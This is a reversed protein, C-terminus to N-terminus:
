GAVTQARPTDKWFAPPCYIIYKLTVIGANCSPFLSSATEYTLSFTIGSNVPVGPSKVIIAAIVPTTLNEVTNFLQEQGTRALEKGEAESFGALEKIDAGAVFAKDGSGTLIIARVTTNEELELLCTRLEQITQKNLANLNEPRNITVVAIKDKYNVVLNEFSM